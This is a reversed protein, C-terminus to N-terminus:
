FDRKKLRANSVARQVVRSRYIFLYVRGCFTLGKAKGRDIKLRVLSDLRMQSVKWQKWIVSGSHMCEEAM